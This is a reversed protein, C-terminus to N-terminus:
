CLYRLIGRAFCEEQTVQTMEDLSVTATPAVQMEVMTQAVNYYLPVDHPIIGSVHTAEHAVISVFNDRLLMEPTSLDQNSGPSMDIVAVGTPSGASGTGSSDLTFQVFNRPQFLGSPRANLVRQFTPSRSCMDVLINRAREIQIPTITSDGGTIITTGAQQCFYQRVDQVPVPINSVRRDVATAPTWPATLQALGVLFLSSLCAWILTTRINM